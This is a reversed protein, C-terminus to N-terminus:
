GYVIRFLVGAAGALAADLDARRLRDAAGVLEVRPTANRVEGDLVLARDRLLQPRQDAVAHVTAVVALEDTRPVAEGLETEFLVEFGSVPQVVGRQDLKEGPGLGLEVLPQAARRGPADAVLPPQAVERHTQSVRWARRLHDIGQRSLFVM